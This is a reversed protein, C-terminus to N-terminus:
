PLAGDRVPGPIWNGNGTTDLFFSQQQPGSMFVRGQKPEIHLRPFLPPNQFNMTPTWVGNRWIQPNPNNTLNNVNPPPVPNDPPPQPRGPLFSGSMVLAGGDPLTLASPYWRGDNMRPQATWTDTAPDYICSQNVGESDFLHGGVVLM